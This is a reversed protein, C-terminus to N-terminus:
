EEKLFLGIGDPVYRQTGDSPVNLTVPRNLDFDWAVLTSSGGGDLNIAWHADIYLFYNAMDMYTMGVSAISRGDVVLWYLTNRDESIGLATRPHRDTNSHVQADGYGGNRLLVVGGSVASYMDRWDDLGDGEVRGLLQYVVEVEDGVAFHEKLWVGNSGAAYLVFTGKQPKVGPQMVRVETVIGRLIREYSGPTPDDEESVQTVVLEVSTPLMTGPTQLVPWRYLGIGMGMDRENMGVVSRTAEGGPARVTGMWMWSGLYPTGDATFAVGNTEGSKLLEGSQMVLGSPFQTNRIDFFASNIGMVAGSQQVMHGVQDRPWRAAESVPQSGVLADLVLEPRTVDIAVLYMNLPGVPLQGQLKVVQVGPIWEIVEAEEHELFGLWPLGYDPVVPWVSVTETPTIYVDPLAFPELVLEYGEGEGAEPVTVSGQLAVRTAGNPQVLKMDVIVPDGVPEKRTRGSRGDEDWVFTHRYLQGEIGVTVPELPGDTEIHLAGVVQVDGTGHVEADTLVVDALGVTLPREDLTWSEGNVVYELVATYAGGPLEAVPVPTYEEEGVDLVTLASAGGDDVLRVQLKGPMEEWPMRASIVTENRRDLRQASTFPVHSQDRQMVWWSLRTPLLRKEVAFGTIEAVPDETPEGVAAVGAVPYLPGSYPELQLNRAIVYDGETVDFVSVAAVGTVPDYGLTVEFEHEWRLPSTQLPVIVSRATFGSGAQGALRSTFLGHESHLQVGWMPGLWGSGVQSLSVALVSPAGGPEEAFGALWVGQNSRFVQSGVAVQTRVTVPGEYGEESAVLQLITYDEALGVPGFVFSLGVILSFALVVAVRRLPKPSTRM